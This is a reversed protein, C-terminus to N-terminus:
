WRIPADWQSMGLRVREGRQLMRLQRSSLRITQRRPRRPQPSSPSPRRQRGTRSVRARRAANTAVMRATARQQAPTRPRRQRPM